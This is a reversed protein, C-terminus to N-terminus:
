GQGLTPLWLQVYKDLQTFKLAYEKVSMNGLHLNIFQLVKAERIEFPFIHDIFAGKFKEWNLPGADVAM